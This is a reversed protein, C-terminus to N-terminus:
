LSVRGFGYGTGSFLDVQFRNEPELAAAMNTLLKQAQEQPIQKIFGILGPM